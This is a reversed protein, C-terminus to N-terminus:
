PWLGQREREITLRRVLLDYVREALEAVDPASADGVGDRSAPPMPVAAPIADPASAAGPVADTMQRRVWSGGAISGAPAPQVPWAPAPPVGRTQTATSVVGPHTASAVPAVGSMAPTFLTLPTLPAGSGSPPGPRVAADSSARSRRLTRYGTGIGSAAPAGGGAAPIGASGSDPDAHAIEPAFAARRTTPTQAAASVAAGTVPRELEPPPSPAGAGLSRARVAPPGAPASAGPRTGATVDALRRVVPAGVRVHRRASQDPPVSPLAPHDGGPEVPAATARSEPLAAAAAPAPAQARVISKGAVLGRPSRHSAGEVGQSTARAGSEPSMRVPTSDVPAALPSWAADEGWAESREVPLRALLQESLTTGPSLARRARALAPVPARDLTVGPQGAARDILRRALPSVSGPETGGSM